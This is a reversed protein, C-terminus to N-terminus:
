YSEDIFWWGNPSKQVIEYEVCRATFIMSVKGTKSTTTRNKTIILKQKTAIAGTRLLRPLFRLANSGGGCRGKGAVRCRADSRASPEDRGCADFRASPEDRGGLVVVDIRASPEDRGGLVVVDFRASPEDRGGLVVALWVRWWPRTMLLLRWDGAADTALPVLLSFVSFWNQVVHGCGHPPLPSDSVLEPFYCVLGLRKELLWCTSYCDPPPHSCQAFVCRSLLTKTALLWSLEGFLVRVILVHLLLTLSVLSTAILEVRLLLILAM